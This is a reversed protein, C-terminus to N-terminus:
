GWFRSPWNHSATAPDRWAATPEDHCHVQAPVNFRWVRGELRSSDCDGAKLPGAEPLEIVRAFSREGESPHRHM